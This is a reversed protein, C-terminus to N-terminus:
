GEKELTERYMLIKFGNTGDTLVGLQTLFGSHLAAFKKWLFRVQNFPKFGSDIPATESFV